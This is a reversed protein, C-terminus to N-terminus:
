FTLDKRKSTQNQDYNLDRLKELMNEFYDQLYSELPILSTKDFNLTSYIYDNDEKKLTQQQKILLIESFALRDQIDWSWKSLATLDKVFSLILLPIFTIKASQGSLEECIKIISASNWKKPGTLEICSTTSLLKNNNILFKACIKAIDRTDLYSVSALYKTTFITEQELIPIAYQGILGQYFGPIQFITFNISSNQLVIELKKKLRMLPITQFKDNESISFFIFKEIKAIKAAKILAIKGILDVGKLTAIEEEPRLTAVDIIITINKLVNPITEPLSLDGYVLESGWEQLFTAKRVNRVLCRTQYGSELLQRVIQRGLTGTAGVVLITM